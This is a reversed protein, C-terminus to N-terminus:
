IEMNSLFDVLKEMARGRHSISNKEELSLEAFTKEYGGPIFIPDYGFGGSGRMEGIIHGTCEGVFKHKSGDALALGLVCRFTAKRDEIDNMQKLVGEVGITDYIYRSYVGPFDELSDIFAGADDIVFPPEVKDKLWDLGFDVVEELTSAQIEPYDISNQVPFFNTKDLSQVFEGIKGKNTTVITLETIEAKSVELEGAIAKKIDKNNKVSQSEDVGTTIQYSSQDKTIIENYYIPFEGDHHHLDFSDISDNMISLRVKGDSDLFILRTSTVRISGDVKGAKYFGKRWWVVAFKRVFFSPQPDNRLEILIDEEEDMDDWDLEDDVGWEIDDVNDWDIEKSSMLSQLESPM